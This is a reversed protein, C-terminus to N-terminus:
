MARDGARRAFRALTRDLWELTRDRGAPALGCTWLVIVNWGSERWLAEHAEDRRVNKRFKDNIDFGNRKALQVTFNKGYDITAILCHFISSNRPSKQYLAGCAVCVRRNKGKCARTWM